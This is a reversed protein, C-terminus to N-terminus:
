KLLAALEDWGWMPGPDSKGYSKGQQTDEHGLYGADNETAARALPIAAIAALKRIVWATSSLQQPTFARNTTPQCVEIHYAIGNLYTAGWAMRDLSVTWHVDGNGAIVCHSSNDGGTKYSNLTASLEQELTWAPDSRTSRTSHVVILRPTATFPQSIAEPGSQPFQDEIHFEAPSWLAQPEAFPIAVAKWGASTLFAELKVKTTLQYAHVPSDSVGDMVPEGIAAAGMHHALEDFVDTIGPLGFEIKGM